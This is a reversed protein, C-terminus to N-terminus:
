DNGRRGNNHKKKNKNRNDHPEKRNKKWLAHEQQYIHVRQNHAHRVWYQYNDFNRHNYPYDPVVRYYPPPPVPEGFIIAAQANAAPAFFLSVIGSLIYLKKKM